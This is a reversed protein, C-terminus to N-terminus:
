RAELEDAGIDVGAGIPRLQADFDDTLGEVQLGADVVRAQRGALHLDGAEPAVFWAPSATTVNQAVTGTAGDRAAIQRNTLNNTISVERTAAFRYEIARPYLHAQYITNNYVRTEPSETLAIGVDAFRAGNAAHYIMNNRITGGSNPGGDLGFGIGRDCDVIWNREVLNDASGSWFHIAFGAVATHPSAIHRLTNGRITWNKAGLADIGGIYFNPGVRASYELLCNEILGGDSSVATDDRNVSVKVLQQYADRLVCNRIVPTDADAEGAIQLAHFRSNQLTLHELRFDDAAVRVVVGVAADERMADGQIVAKERDGSAGVLAVGPALIQLTDSISYIGDRVLITRPGRGRNAEAVADMLEDVNRVTVTQAESGFGLACVPAIACALIFRHGPDRSVNRM